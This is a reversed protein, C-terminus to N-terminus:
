YNLVVKLAVYDNDIEDVYKEENRQYMAWLELYKELYVVSHVNYNRQDMKDQVNENPDVEGVRLAVKLWDLLKASLELHSGFGDYGRILADATNDNEVHKDLYGLKLNIHRLVPWDVIGSSTTLDLAWLELTARGNDAWHDYMGSATLNYRGFWTTKMRGGYAKESNNDSASGIANMNLDGDSGDRFGNSAFIQYNVSLYDTDLLHHGFAVGYDTFWNPFLDNRVGFVKGGYIPHYKYDGFPLFIKGVKFSVLPMPFYEIEYYHTFQVDFGVRLKDTPSAQLLLYSHNSSFSPEDTERLESDEDDGLSQEYMFDLYLKLNFKDKVDQFMRGTESADEGHDSTEEDFVAQEEEVQQDPQHEQAFVPHIALNALAFLGGFTIIIKKM